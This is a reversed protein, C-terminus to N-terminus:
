LLHLVHTIYTLDKIRPGNRQYSSGFFLMGDAPYNEVVKEQRLLPLYEQYVGVPFGDKSMCTIRVDSIDIHM